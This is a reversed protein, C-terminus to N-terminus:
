SKARRRFIGNPFTWNFPTIALSPDSESVIVPSLILPPFQSEDLWYTM